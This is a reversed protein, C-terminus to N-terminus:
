RYAIRSPAEFDLMSMLRDIRRAYAPHYVSELIQRHDMLIEFLPRATDLDIGDTCQDAQPQGAIM